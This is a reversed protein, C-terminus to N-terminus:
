YHKKVNLDCYVIRQLAIERKYKYKHRFYFQKGIYVLQARLLIDEDFTGFKV